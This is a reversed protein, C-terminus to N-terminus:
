WWFQIWDLKFGGVRAFCWGWDVGGGHRFGGCWDSGGGGRCSDFLNVEVMGMDLLNGEMM